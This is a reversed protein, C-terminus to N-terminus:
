RANMGLAGNAQRVWGSELSLGLTRGARGIHNRPVIGSGNDQRRDRCSYRSRIATGDSGEPRARWRDNIPAELARM